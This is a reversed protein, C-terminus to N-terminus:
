VLPTDLKKLRELLLEIESPQKTHDEINQRISLMKYDTATLTDACEKLQRIVEEENPINHKYKLQHELSAWFDMAITRIQVEVEVNKRQNAFFVPVTVILHLSRYGNPKPNAIYDKERVLHIDDQQVLAKALMYIDDVYSCIIRVGAVDHLNKEINETTFALDMRDLKEAISSTRKLRSNIFNIPNRQYRINFEANLVEFKTRIEKIACSYVMMLEKYDVMTSALHKSRSFLDDTDLDSPHLNQFPEQAAPLLSELLPAEYTHKNEM